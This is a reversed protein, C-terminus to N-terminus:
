KLRARINALILVMAIILSFLLIPFLSWWTIKIPLIQIIAISSLFFIIGLERFENSFLDPLDRRVKVADLVDLGSIGRGHADLYIPWIDPKIKLVNEANLFTASVEKELKNRRELFQSSLEFAKISTKKLVYEGVDKKKNVSELIIRSNATMGLLDFAESPIRSLNKEIDTIDAKNVRFFM